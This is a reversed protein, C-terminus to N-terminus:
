TELKFDQIVIKKIWTEKLMQEQKMVSFFIM